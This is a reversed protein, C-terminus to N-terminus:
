LRRTRSSFDAPRVPAKSVPTGVHVFGIIKEDPALGLASKVVTSYAHSGTKWAVGLGLSEATIWLNQIAAGVAVWQEIDPVKPHTQTVASVVLLTPSRLAKSAERELMDFDADPSKERLAAAMANGLLVRREGELITFRWPAILGHDPARVAATLLIELQEQTVATDAFKKTSSRGLIVEIASNTRDATTGSGM